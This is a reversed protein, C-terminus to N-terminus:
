PLQAQAEARDSGRSSPQRRGELLGTVPATVLLRLEAQAAPAERPETATSSPPAEGHRQALRARNMIADLQLRLRCATDMDDHMIAAAYRRRLFDIAQRPESM